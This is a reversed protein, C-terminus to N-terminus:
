MEEDSDDEEEPLFESGEDSDEEPDGKNDGHSQQDAPQEIMDGSDEDIDIDVLMDLPDDSSESGGDSTSMDMSTDQMPAPEIGLRCDWGMTLQNKRKRQEHRLREKEKEDRQQLWKKIKKEAEVRIEARIRALERHVLYMCQNSVDTGYLILESWQGRKPVAQEVDEFLQKQRSVKTFITTKGGKVKRPAKTHYEVVESDRQKSFPKNKYRDCDAFMFEWWEGSCAFLVLSRTSYAPENSIIIAQNEAGMKAARMFRMLHHEFAAQESFHRPAFTKIEQVGIPSCIIDNIAHRDAVSVFETPHIYKLSVQDAFFAAILAFDPVLEAEVGHQTDMSTDTGSRDEKNKFVKFQPGVLVEPVMDNTLALLITKWPMYLFAELRRRNSRTSYALRFEANICGKIRPDKAIGPLMWNVQSPM